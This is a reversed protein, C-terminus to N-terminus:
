TNMSKVHKLDLNKLREKYQAGVVVPNYHQKIFKKALITKKSNPSEKYVEQMRKAAIHIDPEAWYQGQGCPYDKKDIVISKQEVLYANDAHTYDLNGSFNTVIVPKGLLMAEAIGRGFGEARHLSVFCDCLQYLANVKDRRMAEEIIIIRSDDALLKKFKQWQPSKHDTNMVKIVLGVSENMDKFALKFAKVPAEPNKRAYYSNFDFAFVFIFKNETLNFDKRRYNGMAGINVVFPMHLVPVPSNVKFSEASYQTSAWVEDVLNYADQWADPWRPLEWPWYGINYRGCFIDSGLELFFKVTDFGTLCFINTDYKLDDSVHRIISRDLQSVKDGPSINYVAFPIGVSECALVAMRVDEGIGFEGYAFGILNVGSVLTALSQNKLNNTPLSNEPNNKLSFDPQIPKTWYSKQWDAPQYLEPFDYECDNVFWHIFGRISNENDLPFAQQVDKRLLWIGLMIESVGANGAQLPEQAPTKLCELYNKPLDTELFSYEKIGLLLCWTAFVLRGQRTTIDCSDHLDERRIWIFLMLDTIRVPLDQQMNLVLSLDNGSQKLLGLMPSLPNYISNRSNLYQMQWAALHCFQPLDPIKYELFWRLYEARSQVCNLSFAKQLDDRLLWLGIMLESIGEAGAEPPNLAPVKLKEIDEILSSERLAQYENLGHLLCWVILRLRKARQRLSKDLKLDLRLLAILRMVGTFPIPIDQKIDICTKYLKQWRNHYEM